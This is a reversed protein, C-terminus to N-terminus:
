CFTDSGDCGRSWLAVQETRRVAVRNCYMGHTESKGKGELGSAISPCRDAERGKRVLCTECFFFFFFIWGVIVAPCGFGFVVYLWVAVREM